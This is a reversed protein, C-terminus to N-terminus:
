GCSGRGEQIGRCCRWHNRGKHRDGELFGQAHAAAGRRLHRPQLRRCDAAPAADVVNEPDVGAATKLVLPNPVNHYVNAKAEDYNAAYPSDAHSYSAPHRLEKIGLLDLMHQRDKQEAAEMAQRDANTKHAASKARAAQAALPLPVVCSLLGLVFFSFLCRAFSPHRPM